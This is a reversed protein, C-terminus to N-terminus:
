CMLRDERSISCEGHSFKGGYTATQVLYKRVAREPLFRIIPVKAWLAQGMIISTDSRELEM